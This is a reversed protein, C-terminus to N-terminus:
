CRAEETSGTPGLLVALESLSRALSPMVLDGGSSGFSHRNYHHIDIEGRRVICLQLHRSIGPVPSRELASRVAFMLGYATGGPNGVEMQLHTVDSGAAQLAEVYPAVGSGSGISVVENNTGQESAFHPARFCHVYSCAWPVDGANENPHASLLMLECGLRQEDAPAVRFVEAADTPWWEAVTQPVWAAEPDDNRLLETLREVMGFGISVSGAFGLAMFKGV